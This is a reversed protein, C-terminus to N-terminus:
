SLPKLMWKGIEYDYFAVIAQLIWVFKLMALPSFTVDYDIGHFKKFGKVVLRAKYVRVSGDKDTKVKFIWKCGIPTVGHPLDEM